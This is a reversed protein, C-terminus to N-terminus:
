ASPKLAPVLVRKSANDLLLPKQFYDAVLFLFSFFFRNKLKQFVSSGRTNALYRFSM